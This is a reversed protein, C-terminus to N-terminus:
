IYTYTIDQSEYREAPEQKLLLGIRRSPNDEKLTTLPSLIFMVSLIDVAGQLVTHSPLSNPFILQCLLTIVTILISRSVNLLPSYSYIM